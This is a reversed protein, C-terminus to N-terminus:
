KWIKLYNCIIPNDNYLHKKIKVPSNILAPLSTRQCSLHEIQLWAPMEEPNNGPLCEMWFSIIKLHSALYYSRFQPLGFGGESPSKILHKKSIRPIKGSWVFSSIISDLKRFHNQPICVPISQFIYLFRPLVVMKIANIRGVMSIPLTNWLQINRELQDIKEDWNHRLLQSLKRTVIIGLRTFKESVIRFSTTKLFSRDVSNSLPMLESKGWNIKYGSFSGFKNILQLLPPISAKPDSIFLVVDDAYASIKHQTGLHIIPRIEPSSRIYSALPELSLAFIFPSLPDGQRTGQYLRFPDSKNLNTIVSATPEKYLIKIWKIFSNGLGFRVLVSLMYPWEVQDFAKEADLSIIVSDEMNRLPSYLINFLRRMNFYIHRDPIFGTQDPHIIRSIHSNLRNALIKSFLKTELPLLSVPRYSSVNTPDRDKKLLLAINGQYLTNTLSGVEWSRNFMRLILPALLSSYAKYFEAGFGDPGPAKNNPLQAITAKVEDLTIEADLEAAADQDLKPLDCKELFENVEDQSTTNNSSYLNRYFDEFCKNIEQQDTVMQGRKNKIRLIAQSAQSHRLQRALLRHPKDGLEFLRQRSTVMQSCVRKSLITNYECKLKTIEGLTDTTPTSQYSQELRRLESEMDKLAANQKKSKWSTYSIIHGRMVAKLSDWLVSDDVDGKDNAELFFRIHEEM